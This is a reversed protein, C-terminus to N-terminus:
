RSVIECSDTSARYDIKWHKNWSGFNESLDLRDMHFMCFSRFGETVKSTRMQSCQFAYTYMGLHILILCRLINWPAGRRFWVFFYISVSLQPQSMWLGRKILMFWFWLQRHPRSLGTEISKQVYTHIKCYQLCRNVKSYWPSRGACYISVVGGDEWLWATWWTMSFLEKSVKAISSVLFHCYIRAPVKMEIGSFELLINWFCSKPCRSFHSQCQELLFSPHGFSAFIHKLLGFSAFIHKLFM